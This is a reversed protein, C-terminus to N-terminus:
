KTKIEYVRVGLPEIKDSLKNETTTLMREDSLLKIKAPLQGKTPKATLTTAAYTMNVAFLYKNGKHLFIRTRISQNKEVSLPSEKPTLSLLIPSLTRLESTIKKVNKMGQETKFLDFRGADYAFSTLGKAGAVISQYVMNRLQKFNPELLGYGSGGPGKGHLQLVNWVPKKDALLRRTVMIEDYVGVLKSNSRKVPYPDTMIIDACDLYGTDKTHQKQRNKVLCLVLVTPRKAADHKKILEVSSAILKPSVNEHLPEDFLYWLLLAPSSQLLKIRQELKESQQHLVHYRPLGMWVKLGLKHAADLYAKIAKPSAANDRKKSGEGSYTHVMNFGLEKAHSLKNLPVSYIGIPFVPNDDICIRHEEDITVKPRDPNAMASHTLGIMTTATLIM